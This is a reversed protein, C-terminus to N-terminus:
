EAGLASFAGQAASLRNLALPPRTLAVPPWTIAVPCRTLAVLPRTLAVPRSAFAAGFWALRQGARRWALGPRTHSINSRGGGRGSGHAMCRLRGTRRRAQRPPACRGAVGLRRGQLPDRRPHGAELQRRPLKVQCQCRGGGFSQVCVCGAGPMRVCARVYTRLQRQGRGPEASCGALRQGRGPEASCGALANKFIHMRVYTRVGQHGGGALGPWARCFLWGFLAVGRGVALGLLAALTRM